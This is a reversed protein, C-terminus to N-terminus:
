LLGEYTQTRVAMWWDIRSQFELLVYVFLDLGGDTPLRWIVDGERRHSEGDLAAAYGKANVREMRDFLLGAAM